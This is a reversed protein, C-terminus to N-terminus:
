GSGAQEGLSDILKVLPLFLAIVITGVMLGLVIVIVPELLSMLGAVLADVEEDYAEAVKILMRDLDGTEEGVDVMNVVMEDCVRSARLPEAISEGERISDHVKGIARAVVENGATDRVINLAELIPVGSAILTGLTRAFRSIVSKSLITGFIPIKMKMWDTILRGIRPIRIIKYVIFLGIPIALLIPWDNVMFDSFAILKLTLEPMDVDMSEFIEKFQPIIKIMIFSLIATAFSIVAVPYVLATIVKRKLRQSKERFDALRQLITDLVGGTEGAKVMNVYLRDFARPHKGMAESLTSGGEIDETIDILSNKLVGPKMQGELIKISRVIPLGADQLTSLQRTFTTLQKNRVSGIALTKGSAKGGRAGGKKRSRVSKERIKTPFYGLNRIKIAADESSGAEIEDKVEEGSATMAEFQYIAM